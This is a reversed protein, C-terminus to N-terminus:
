VCCVGDVHTKKKKKKKKKKSVYANVTIEMSLKEYINYSRIGPIQKNTQYLKFQAIWFPIKSKELFRNENFCITAAMSSSLDSM